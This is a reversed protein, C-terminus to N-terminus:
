FAVSGTVAVFEIEFKFEYMNVSDRRFCIQKVKLIANQVHTYFAIYYIYFTIYINLYTRYLDM